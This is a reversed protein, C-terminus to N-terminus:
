QAAGTIARVMAECEARSMHVKEFPLGRVAQAIRAYSQPTMAAVLEPIETVPDDLLLGVGARDLWAGTEVERLALPVAGNALGEYLRNPLLWSSNLGEEFYDIAWVFHVDAYLRPLDEPRYPGVYRVHPTAAVEAEFDDFENPSARGAILVEIAGGARAAIKSLQALSKKCRLMGFWGIVWPPTVLPVPAPTDAGDLAPVKNEVLLAPGRYGQRAAFYAALFSPSSVILLNLGRLAKREIWQVARSGLGDGLLM